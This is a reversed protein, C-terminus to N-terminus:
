GQPTSREQRRVFHGLYTKMPEHFIGAHNVPTCPMGTLVFRIRYLDELLCVEYGYSELESLVTKGAPGVDTDEAGPDIMRGDLCLIPETEDVFRGSFPIILVADPEHLWEFWNDPTMDWAMVSPSYGRVADSSGWYDMAAIVLRELDFWSTPVQIDSM